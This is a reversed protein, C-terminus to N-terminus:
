LEQSAESILLKWNEIPKADGYSAGQTDLHSTLHYLREIDDGHGPGVSADRFREQLYPPPISQNYLRVTVKAAKKGKPLTMKYTLQDSGTLRPDSYFPDACKKGKRVEGEPCERALAQIFKSKNDAYFAPDFGKPRLRNDKLTKIRRLFSTNIVGASDAIVEQYIQVEDQSRILEYHPQFAKPNDIPKEAALPVQGTGRVLVGLSDTRGSAWLLSGDADEVTVELFARRFGVGSPYHHGGKNTVLVTMSLVGDPGPTLKTIEVDATEDRAMDLMSGLGTVLPPTPNTGTMYDLQRLGLILPFQQFMENLFVNLGHLSHRAYHDRERLEIDENPLRNDTPAYQSSEINAIEVALEKGGFATPMHCDQCSKELPRGPAFDSNQWELFTTQEYSYGRMKGKNTVQPLLIAHCSGCMESGAIQDAQTPTIGLAHEMPATAVEEYPGYLETAPGSVFNGTFGAETGLGEKSIHHCAACSIGDRALAAERHSAADGEKGGPWQAVTDRRFPTGFPVAEPPPVGFLEKCPADPSATAAAHTRQGMVGHCHLCTTEICAALAPLHNTESQLQSFFIPDRGALGMPSARWEGYPSLNFVADEGAPDKATIAMNPTTANAATADHCGACQDSTVFEGPGDAGSPVHDYTEAPFRLAWARAYSVAELQDYFSLFREDPQQRASPFPSHYGDAEQGGLTPEHHISGANTHDAGGENPTADAFWRYRAGPGAVNALTSYTSESTASAHCNICYNGYMNFPFAVDTTKAIAKGGPLVLKGGLYGTPLWGPLPHSPDAPVEDALFASRDILPPNNELGRGPGAWYWGDLTAKENKVMVTWSSPEVVKTVSMCGKTDTEIGLSDDIAHMEKVIMEGTKLEGERGNCLWDVVGPSYWIRVAPHVGYSEKCDGPTDGVCPGTLRWNTDSVWGLDRYQANDLFDVLATNWTNYAALDDLPPPTGLAMPKGRDGHEACWQNMDQQTVPPDEACIWQAPDAPLGTAVSADTGAPQKPDVKGTSCAGLPFIALFLSAALTRPM